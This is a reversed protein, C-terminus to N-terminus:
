SYSYEFIKEWNYCVISSINTPNYHSYVFTDFKVFRTWLKRGNSNFNTTANKSFIQCVCILHWFLLERKTISIRTHFYYRGFLLLLITYKEDFAMRFFTNSTMLWFKLIFLNPSFFIIYKKKKGLKSFNLKLSLIMEIRRLVLKKELYYLWHYLFAGIIKISLNLNFLIAHAIM